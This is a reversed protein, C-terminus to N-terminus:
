NGHTHAHPIEGRAPETQTIPVKEVKDTAHITYLRAVDRRPGTPKLLHRDEAADLPSRSSAFELNQIQLICFLVAPSECGRDGSHIVLYKGGDRYIM